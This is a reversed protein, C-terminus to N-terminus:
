EVEIICSEVGSSERGRRKDLGKAIAREIAAIDREREEEPLKVLHKYIFKGLKQAARKLTFKKCRKKRLKVAWVGRALEMESPQTGASPSKEKHAPGKSAEGRFGRWAV